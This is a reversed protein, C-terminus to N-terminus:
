LIDEEVEIKIEKKLSAIWRHFEKDVGVMRLKEVIKEKIDEFELKGGENKKEVKFIHYGYPSKVVKSISGVPLEFVVEEFELPMDGKGFFGLDGGNKAEPGISVEKALKKFDEKKLRKRVELAEKETGVVIMRARVQEPVVYDKINNEYYSEAEEDTVEVRARIVEDIVKRVLLKRKIEEKWDEMTGYKLLILEEFGGKGYELRIDEVEMALEEGTVEIGNIRAQEIVLEEEILQNLLNRKLEKLEENKIDETGEPLLRGLAENFEGLTIARKGVSVLVRDQEKSMLKECGPLNAMLVLAAFFAPFIKVINKRM